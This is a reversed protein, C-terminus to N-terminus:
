LGLDDLSNASSVALTLAQVGDLDMALLRRETREPLMGFKQRLLDGAVRRSAQLIGKEFGIREGKEIGIREGKEIGIREGKEMLVEAGTKMIGLVEEDDRLKQTVVSRLREGEEVTRRHYTLHNM